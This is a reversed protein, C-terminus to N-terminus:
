GDVDGLEKMRNSSLLRDGRLNVEKGTSVDGGALRRRGCVKVQVDVFRDAGIIGAISVVEDDDDMVKRSEDSNASFNSSFQGIV